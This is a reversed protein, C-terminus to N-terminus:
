AAPHERGASVERSWLAAGVVGAEYGLSAPRFEVRDIETVHCHSRASEVVQRWFYGHPKIVGGGLVVVEPALASIAGAIALGFHFGAYNLVDQAVPDGAVAAAEVIEPVMKNLDDGIMERLRTTAGMVIRRNAEGILAPGAAYAEACGRNGCGCEPGNPDVIVHGLEGGAGGVGLNLKGHAVIGGGIGTGVAYFLGTKVGQASGVTLEALTFARVDNILWVPIGLAEAIPGTVPVHPWDGPLNPLFISIGKAMDIVGPVAVGAAQLTSGAPVKGALTKAGAIMRQLVADHGEDGDTPIRDNALIQGSSDVLAFKITTGGLDIGLFCSTKSVM